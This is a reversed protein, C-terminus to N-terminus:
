DHAEEVTYRSHEPLTRHLYGSSRLQTRPDRFYM